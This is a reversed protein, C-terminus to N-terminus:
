DAKFTKNVFKYLLWLSWDWAVNVLYLMVYVQCGAILGYAISYTFPMVTTTVFAPIAEMPDEWDIDVLARAMMVGVMILAPGIAWVPINVIIPAFFCAISFCVVGVLATIGTRGGGIVGAGNESATTVPSMGLLSGLIAAIADVSFAAYSSEFDASESEDIFGAFKCLSYLTGTTDLLDVYLFTVLALWMEPNGFSFDLALASMSISHFDVVQSFYDWKADGAPTDGTPLTWRPTVLSQITALVTRRHAGVWHSLHSANATVLGIGNSTQYGIFSLFFGIGASTALRVPRPIPEAIYQRLGSRALFLFILGEVFVATLATEYPVAGSEMYGVVQYAFYSNMGMGPMLLFPLRAVVGM